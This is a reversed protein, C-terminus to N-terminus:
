FAACSAAGADGMDGMGDMGGADMDMTDVHDPSNGDDAHEGTDGAEEGTHDVVELTEAETDAAAEGVMGVGIDFGQASCGACGACANTGFQKKINDNTAAEINYGTFICCNM